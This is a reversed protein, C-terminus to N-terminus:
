DFLDELRDFISKKKKKYYPQRYKADYRPDYERYGREYPRVDREAPRYNREYDDYEKRTERVDAMLKELEGRDLWVGKCEPCVDIMVGSKEVERLRVDDCIPCKM